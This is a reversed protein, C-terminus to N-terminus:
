PVAFMTLVLWLLPRSSNSNRIYIWGSFCRRGTQRSVHGHSKRSRRVALGGRTLIDSQFVCNCLAFEADVDAESM